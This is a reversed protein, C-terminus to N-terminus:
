KIYSIIENFDVPLYEPKIQWEANCYSDIKGCVVPYYHIIPSKINTMFIRYKKPVLEASQPPLVCMLQQVPTCFPQPEFVKVNKRQKLNFYIDAMTPAHLHNFYHRYNTANGSYYGLVWEITDIYSHCIKNLEVPDVRDTHFFFNYYRREWGPRTYNIPDKYPIAQPDENNSYKNRKALTKTNEQVYEQELSALIEVFQTFYKMNLTVLGTDSTNTLGNGNNNRLFKWYLEMLKDLSGCKIEISPAHPLFDNGGFFCLLIYDNVITNHNLTSINTIEEIDSVLYDRIKTVSIFNYIGYRKILEADQEERFIYLNNLHTGLTLMILDADLSNVCNVTDVDGIQRLYTMIKAEGEGPENSDSFVITLNEWKRHIFAKLRDSLKQMFDTGPTIASSDFITKDSRETSFRRLRQQHMKAFPAVGDICIYCATTPKIYDIIMTLDKICQIIIKNEVQNKSYRKDTKTYDEKLKSIVKHSSPHIMANFDLFLNHVLEPKEITIKTSRLLRKTYSSIGM